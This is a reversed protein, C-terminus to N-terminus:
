LLLKTQKPQSSIKIRNIPKNSFEYNSEISKLFEDNLVEKNIM